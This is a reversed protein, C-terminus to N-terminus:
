GAKKPWGAARRGVSSGLRVLPGASLKKIWRERAEKRGARKDAARRSIGAAAGDHSENGGDDGDHSGSAILAKTVVM